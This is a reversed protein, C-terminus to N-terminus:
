GDAESYGYRTLCRVASCHRPRRLRLVHRRTLAGSLECNCVDGRMILLFIQHDAQLKLLQTAGSGVDPHRHRAVLRWWPASTREARPSHRCRSSPRGGCIGMPTDTRSTRAPCPPKLMASTRHMAVDAPLAVRTPAPRISTTTPANSPPAQHITAATPSTGIAAPRRLKQKSAGSNWARRCM